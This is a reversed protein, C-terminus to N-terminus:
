RLTAITVGDGGEHATGRRYKLVHPSDELYQRVARRLVGEGQGHIVTVTDRGALLSDDIYKRLKLLAEDTNLQRVVLDAPLTEHKSRGIDRLQVPPGTEEEEDSAAVVDAAAVRLKMVGIQVHVEGREEDVDLVEGSRDWERVRVRMGRRLEGVPPAAEDDTQRPEDEAEPTMEGFHGLIKSELSNLLSRLAEARRIVEGPGAAEDGSEDQSRAPVFEGRRLEAALQHLEQLIGRSDRRAEALLDRVERKTEEIIQDQHERIERERRTARERLKRADSAEVQAEEKRRAWESRDREMACILEEVSGEEDTLLSRARTILDRPMGLRGAIELANSRGPLGMILHYTPSLTDLDFEMSANQVGELNYAFTKLRSYHTTAITRVRRSQLEELVAMALPAGEMPDTGAGLEDLLVLTGRDATRVIPIVNRMHSSFTSLNQAISQEDGIDCMVRQFIGVSSKPGSPLHLGSQCMLVMLGVTKLTVTKGGTNPGTIVLIDFDGGVEVDIPVVDGTLLPHRAADLRVYEDTNIEPRVADTAESWSARAYILDLEGLVEQESRLRDVSGHVLESLESLIRRVEREEESGLNKIENNLEVAVQPEVFVTAGSSSQGHVIGAIRGRHEQRVPLVFRGNRQTVIPEQLFDRTASSKTMSELRARLNASTARLSRRIRALERSATDVVEGDDNICRGIEEELHSSPDLDEVLAALDPAEERRKLMFGKMKRAARVCDSIRLLDDTDLVAGKAARRLLEGLDSLGGLPIRTRAMLKRMQATQELLVRVTEPDGSPELRRLMARGLASTAHEELRGKVEYFGLHEYAYETLGKLDPLETSEGPSEGEGWM